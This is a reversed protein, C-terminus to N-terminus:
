KKKKYEGQEEAVKSVERRKGIKNPKAEEILKAIETLLEKANGDTPLQAVLM